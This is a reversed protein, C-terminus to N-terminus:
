EGKRAKVNSSSAADLYSGDRITLAMCEIPRDALGGHYASEPQQEHFGLNRACM